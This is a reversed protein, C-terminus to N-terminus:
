ICLETRILLGIGAVTFMDGVDMAKRWPFFSCKYILEATKSVPQMLGSRFRYRSSGNERELQDDVVEVAFFKVGEGEDATEFFASNPNLPRGLKKLRKDPAIYGLEEALEQALAKFHSEGPNLFGRPLNWVQGGQNHRNQLLLGVFLRGEIKAYPVSVVGGGGSEHFSWGDYGSRTWGYSLRGIAPHTLSILNPRVEAGDLEVKWGRPSGEPIERILAM